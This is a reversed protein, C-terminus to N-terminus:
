YIVVLLRFNSSGIKIDYVSAFSLVLMKRQKQKQHKKKKKSESHDPKLTVVWDKLRRSWAM